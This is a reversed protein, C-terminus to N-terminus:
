SGTNLEVDPSMLCFSAFLQRWDDAVAETDSAAAMTTLVYHYSGDDLIALRGVQQEGEGAASWVCDYRTHEGSRTKLLQLADKSYGTASRLTAELDGAPVTQMTITYNDCLYLTGGADSQLIPVMAGQPLEAFPQQMMAAASQVDADTVTEFTEQSACGTCLLATVLIVIVSKKM